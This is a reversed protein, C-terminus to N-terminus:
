GGAKDATSLAVIVFMFLPINMLGYVSARGTENVLKGRQFAMSPVYIGNCAELFMLAGFLQLEPGVFTAVLSSIGAFFLAGSLLNKALISDQNNASKAATRMLLGFLLAGLVMTAMFNGFVVGYPIGDDSAQSRNHAQQLAGPWYFMVLFITGEFCCSILSLALVRSDRISDMVEQRWSKKTKLGYENAHPDVQVGHNENWSRLMLVAALADLLISVLFPGTKSDSVWVVGHALLGTAIATACNWTTMIGFMHSLPISSKALERRTYEGIMWSEFATWLLTIGIGSLIRGLVLIETRDFLVSLSSVSHIACFALCAGRRGFKDALYGTWPASFAAACYTATYLSAM